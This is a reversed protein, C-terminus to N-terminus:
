GVLWCDFYSFYMNKKCKNVRVVSLTTYKSHMLSINLTEAPSTKGRESQVNEKDARSVHSAM